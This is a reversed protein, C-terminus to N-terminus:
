VAARRRLAAEDVIVVHGRRTEVCGVSRLVALAKTVAERSACAWAALEDHTVEIRGDGHFRDRLELLRTAVRGVVDLSALERRQADAVTLREIVTDMVVVAAEPATSLFRRFEAAPVALAEVETRATLTASRPVRRLAALEGVLEGPGAVGLIVDKGGPGITSAAVQGELLILVGGTDDHEHVITDGARYRRRNGLALLRRRDADTLAGLFDSV